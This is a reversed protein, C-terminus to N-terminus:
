LITNGRKTTGDERSPVNLVIQKMEFILQKYEDTNPDLENLLKLMESERLRTIGARFLVGWMYNKAKQQLIFNEGGLCTILFENVQQDGFMQSFLYFVEDQCDNNELLNTKLISFSKHYRYYRWLCFAITNQSKPPASEMVELLIKELGEVHHSYLTEICSVLRTSGTETKLKGLNLVVLEKSWEIEEEATACYQDMFGDRFINWKNGGNTMYLEKSSFNKMFSNQAFTAKL